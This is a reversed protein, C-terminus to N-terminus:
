RRRRQTALEATPFGADGFLDPGSQKLREHARSLLVTQTRTLNRRQILLYGSIGMCPTLFEPIIEATVWPFSSGFTLVLAVAVRAKWSVEGQSEFFTDLLLALILAQAFVVPWLSHTGRFVALFLGYYFPRSVDFPHLSASFNVHPVTDGFMMPYGNFLALSSFLLATFLIVGARPLARSALSTM